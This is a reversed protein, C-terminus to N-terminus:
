LDFRLQNSVDAESRKRVRSCFAPMTPRCPLLTDGDALPQYRGAVLGRPAIGWSWDIFSPRTKARM